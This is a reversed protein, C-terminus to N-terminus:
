VGIAKEGTKCKAKTRKRRKPKKEGEARKYFTLQDFSSRAKKQRKAIPSPILPVPSIEAVALKRGSTSPNQNIQLAASTTEIAEMITTERNDVNEEGEGLLRRTTESAVFMHDPFIDPNFPYLGTSLFGKEANLITAAKGYAPSFISCIQYVTIVRGPHNRMWKQAEQNYYTKLPGFFTVDLPQMRHTCHPPLCVLVIGNQKAFELVAVDKHSGHGDVILLIKDETSPKAHKTVHELVKVFLEGTMWGKKQVLGISGTPASDILENKFNKRAFIFVPPIYHGTASMTCVVSVHSGREGSTITGVQKKGTTAFVKSPDHVTSLASEDLNYIRNASINMSGLVSEYTNFFSKVSKQNFGSARSFSTGEPKRLSIGPNRRRFGLLWDCGAAEKECNFRNPIGNKEAIQFALKRVDSASLGFGRSELLKIHELLEKETAVDFTPQYRGLGKKVGKFIKNKGGEVRRRLTAQPVGFTKAAKLWGMTKEEIAKIANAMSEESWSQRNSKRKYKGM